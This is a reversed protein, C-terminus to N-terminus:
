RVPNRDCRQRPLSSCSVFGTSTSRFVGIAAAHISNSAPTTPLQGPRGLDAGRALSRDPRIKM